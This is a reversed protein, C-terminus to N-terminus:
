HSEGASVVGEARRPTQRGFRPVAGYRGDLYSRELRRDTREKFDELSYLRSTGGIDRQVYWVEDRRVLELNQIRTEHTTILLQRRCDGAISLYDRVLREVMLPHLSRELEDVVYTVDPMSGRQLIPILDYLRQTGDSEETFGFRKGNHEFVVRDVRYGDDYRFRYMNDPARVMGVRGHKTGDELYDLLEKPMGSPPYEVEEYGTATIGTDYSTMVQEVTRDRDPDYTVMVNRGAMTIILHDRFWSMAERSRRFMEGDAGTMKVITPLLLDRSGSGVMDGMVDLHTAYVSRDAMETRVKGPSRDFVCEDGDTLDYLWESGIVGTEATVEFGYVYVRNGVSFVYQFGTPRSVNADDMRNWSDRPIGVGAVVMDRSDRMARVLNSKGSANAGYVATFTLVNMGGVKLLHDHHMRSTGARMSVKAESGFSRYNETTFEILM